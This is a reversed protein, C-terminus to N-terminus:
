SMVEKKISRTDCITLNSDRQHCLMHWMYDWTRSPLSIYSDKNEEKTEGLSFTQDTVWVSDISTVFQSAQRRWVTIGVMTNIYQLTKLLKWQTRQGQCTRATLPILLMMYQTVNSLWKLSSVNDCVSWQWHRTKVCWFLGSTYWLSKWVKRRWKFRYLNATFYKM